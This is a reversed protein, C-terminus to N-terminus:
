PKPDPNQNQGSASAASIQSGGATNIDPHFINRLNVGLQKIISLFLAYRRQFNPYDKFTEVKPAVSYLASMGFSTYTVYDAIQHVSVM